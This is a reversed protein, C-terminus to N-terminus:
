RTLSASTPDGKQSALLCKLLATGAAIAVAQGVDGWDNLGSQWATLVAAAAATAVWEATEQWFKKTWM